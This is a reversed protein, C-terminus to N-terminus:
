RNGSTVRAEQQQSNGYILQIQLYPPRGAWGVIEHKM